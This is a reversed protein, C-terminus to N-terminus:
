KIVYELTPDYFICPVQFLEALSRRDWSVWRWEVGDTLLSTVKEKTSIEALLSYWDRNRVVIYMHATSM